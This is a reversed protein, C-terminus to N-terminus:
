GFYEVECGGFRFFIQFLISFGVFKLLYGALLWHSISSIKRLGEKFFPLFGLLFEERLEDTRLM